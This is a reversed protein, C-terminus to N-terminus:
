SFNSVLIIINRNSCNNYFIVFYNSFSKISSISKFRNNTM